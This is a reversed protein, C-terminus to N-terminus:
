KRKHKKATPKPVLGLSARALADAQTNHRRQVLQFDISDFAALLARAEAFLKALRAIKTRTTGTTQEVVVASDSRIQLARARHRRAMKLAAILAAAEAENNCGRVGLAESLTFVVGAPSVLVAGVGILGPNPLATGDCHLLWTAPTTPPSAAGRQADSDDPM